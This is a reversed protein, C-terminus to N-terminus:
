LCTASFHVQAFCSVNGLMRNDLSEGSRFAFSSLGKFLEDCFSIDPCVRGPTLHSILECVGSELLALLSGHVRPAPLLGLRKPAAAHGLIGSAKSEGIHPRALDGPPRERAPCGQCAPDQTRHQKPPANSAPIQDLMSRRDSPLIAESECTPLEPSAPQGSPVERHAPPDKLLRFFSSSLSRQSQHPRAGLGYSWAARIALTLSGCILM